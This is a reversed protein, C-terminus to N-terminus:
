DLAPGSGKVRWLIMPSTWLKRRMRWGIKWTTKASWQCLFTWELQEQLVRAMSVCDYSRVESMKYVKGILFIPPDILEFDSNLGDSISTSLHSTHARGM